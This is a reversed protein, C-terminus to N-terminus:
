DKLDGLLANMDRYGKVNPDRAIREAELMAAVTEANPVRSISFPIGQTLVAQRLFMTIAATMNLGLDMFLEEAQMKLGSDMRLSVNTSEAM